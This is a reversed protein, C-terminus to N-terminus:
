VLGTTAFRSLPYWHQRVDLHDQTQFGAPALLKQTSHGHEGQAQTSKEQGGGWFMYM